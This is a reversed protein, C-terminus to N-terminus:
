NVTRRRCRNCAAVRVRRQAMGHLGSCRPVEEHASGVSTVVTAGQLRCESAPARLLVVWLCRHTRVYFTCCAGRAARVVHCPLCTNTAWRPMYAKAALPEGSGETAVGSSYPGCQGADEFEVIASTAWRYKKIDRWLKAMIHATSGSYARRFVEKMSGAESVDATARGKARKRHVEPKAGVSGSNDCDAAYCVVVRTGPRLKVPEAVAEAAVRQCGYKEHNRAQVRAQTRRPDRAAAKGHGRGRQKSIGNHRAM